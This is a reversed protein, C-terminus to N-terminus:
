VNSNFVRMFYRVSSSTARHFARSGQVDLGRPYRGVHALPDVGLDLRFQGVDDSERPPPFGSGRSAMSYM